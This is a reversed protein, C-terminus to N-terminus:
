QSRGHNRKFAAPDLPEDDMRLRPITASPAATSLQADDADSM